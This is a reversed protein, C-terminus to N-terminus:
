GKPHPIVNLTSALASNNLVRVCEHIKTKGIEMLWSAQSIFHQDPHPKMRGTQTEPKITDKSPYKQTLVVHPIGNTLKKRSSAM